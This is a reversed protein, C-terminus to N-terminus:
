VPLRIMPEIAFANVGHGCQVNALVRELLTVVGDAKGQLPCPLRVDLGLRANLEGEGFLFLLLKAPVHFVVQHPRFRDFRHLDFLDLLPHLPPADLQVFADELPATVNLAEKIAHEILQSIQPHFDGGAHGLGGGDGPFQHAIGLGIGGNGQADM